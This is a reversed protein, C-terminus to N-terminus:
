QGEVSFHFHDLHPSPMRNAPPTVGGKHLFSPGFNERRYPVSDFALQFDRLISSGMGYLTSVSVGNIRSIDVALAKYHNSTTAHRGNTTASIHISTISATQNVVELATKIADILRTSVEQDANIYDSQTTGFSVSVIRGSSLTFSNPFRATPGTGSLNDDDGDDIDGDGSYSDYQMETNGGGSPPWGEGPNSTGGGPEPCYTYVVTGEYVWGCSINYDTGSPNTSWCHYGYEHYIYVDCQLSAFLPKVNAPPSVSSTKIENKIAQGTRKMLGGTKRDRFWTNIWTGDLKSYTELTGSIEGNKSKLKANNHSRKIAAETKNDVTRIMLSFSVDHDNGSELLQYKSNSDDGKFSFPIETYNVQGLKFRNVQSWNLTAKKLSGDQLKLYLNEDKYIGGNQHIWNKEAIYMDKEDVSNKKCATFFLALPVVWLMKKTFIKRM